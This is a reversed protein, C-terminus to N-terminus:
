DALDSVDEEVTTETIYGNIDPYIQVPTTYEEVSGRTNKINLRKFLLQFQEEWARDIKDVADGPLDWLAKKFPGLARKRTKYFFQDDTQGEKREDSHNETLYAYIEGRLSDPIHDFLINQFGTALHVELAGAEAFKTFAEEPLTSAGHQVAGGMDYDKAVISLQALTDFDVSVEAISGDPLVVGGHSTGTQISIKSLGEAGKLFEPLKSNFGDMFARLEPETSNQGGVEGIEGGLSITVNKPENNRIHAAIEACLTFNTRQQEPITEQELDVLTSTDIDINFFGAGISEISLDCVTKVEGTADKAFRSASIQYHDGQIFVPGKYGEAIAAGLITAAYETPRQDTYGMESRAIEFILAGADCALAARFVARAATHSLARLNIAPVTFDNKIKGQGRAIYFEHISAPYAGVDVAITRILWRALGRERPDGFAATRVVPEINARLEVMDRVTVVPGESIRISDGLPKAVRLLDDIIAM